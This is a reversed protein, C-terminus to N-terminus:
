NYQQKPEGLNNNQIASPNPKITVTYIIRDVAMRSDLWTRKHNLTYLCQYIDSNSMTSPYGISNAFRGLDCIKVVSNLRVQSDGTSSSATSPTKRSKRSKRYALDRDTKELYSEGKGGAPRIQRVYGPDGPESDTFLRCPIQFASSVEPTPQIHLNIRPQIVSPLIDVFIGLAMTVARARQIVTPRRKGM